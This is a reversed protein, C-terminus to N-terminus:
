AVKKLLQFLQPIANLVMRIGVGSAFKYYLTKPATMSFSTGAIDFHAWLVKPDVFRQIFQAATIAGAFSPSHANKVDAIESDMLKDYEEELPMRWIREWTNQGSAQMIEYLRDSNFFAGTYTDGLASIISGTLTAFDLIIKPKYQEQVYSIADALILRGEADTNIIEVTKGSYSKVIDGPRQADGSVMNEVCPIVGVLNYNLNLKAAARMIGIVTAAGAMDTKMDEMHVSPIKLSLGGSDFTVGKGVLAIVDQGPNPTWEMLILKAKDTSAQGVGVLCEMDKIEEGEMVRCKLGLKALELAKKCLESPRLRNAPLNVLERTHMVSKVITRMERLRTEHLDNAVFTVEKRTKPKAVTKFKDFTPYRLMCAEIVKILDDGDLETICCVDDCSVKQLGEGIKSGIHYPNDEPKVEIYTVQKDDLLVVLGKELDKRSCKLGAKQLTAELVSPLCCIVYAKSEHVKSDKTKAIKVGIQKTYKLPMNGAFSATIMGLLILGARIM